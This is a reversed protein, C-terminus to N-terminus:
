AQVEVRPRMWDAYARIGAELSHTVTFGIDQRLRDGALPGRMRAHGDRFPGVLKTELAATSNGLFRVQPVTQQARAALPWVVAAGTLLTIFERRRIM